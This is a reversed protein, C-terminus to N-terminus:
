MNITETTRKGDVVIHVYLHKDAVESLDFVLDATGGTHPSTIKSAVLSGPTVVSAEMSGKAKTGFQVRLIGQIPEYTYSFDKIRLSREEPSFVLIEMPRSSKNAEAAQANRMSKAAEQLEVLKRQATEIQKQLAASYGETQMRGTLTQVVDLQATFQDEISISNEIDTGLKEAESVTNKTQATAITGTAFLVIAIAMKM